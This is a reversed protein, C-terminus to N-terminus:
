GSTWNKLQEVDDRQQDADTDIALVGFTGTPYPLAHRLPGPNASDQVRATRPERQSGRRHSGSSVALHPM